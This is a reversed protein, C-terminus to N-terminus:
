DYSFTTSPGYGYGLYECTGGCAWYTPFNISYGKSTVLGGSTYSYSESMTAGCSNVDGTTAGAIRGLLNTGSGSSDYTLAIATIGRQVIRTLMSTLWDDTATTRIFLSRGRRM